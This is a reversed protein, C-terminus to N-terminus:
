PEESTKPEQTAPRAGLKLADRGLPTLVSYASQVDRGRTRTEVWGYRVCRIFVDLRVNSGSCRHDRVHELIRQQAPTPKREKM